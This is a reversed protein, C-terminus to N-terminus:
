KEAPSGRTYWVLLAGGIAGIITAGFQAEPIFPLRLVAAAAGAFCLVLIAFGAIGKVFAMASPIQSAPNTVIQMTRDEHGVIADM